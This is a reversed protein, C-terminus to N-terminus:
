PKARKYLMAKWLRCSSRSATVQMSLMRAVHIQYVRCVVRTSEAGPEGRRSTSSTRAWRRDEAAELDRAGGSVVRRRLRHRPGPHQASTGVLRSRKPSVAARRAAYTHRSPQHKPSPWGRCRSGPIHSRVLMSRSSRRGRHLGQIQRAHEARGKLMQKPMKEFRHSRLGWIIVRVSETQLASKMPPENNKCCCCRRKENPLLALRAFAVDM